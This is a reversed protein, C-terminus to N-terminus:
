LSDLKIKRIEEPTYFYDWIYRVKNVNGDDFLEDEFSTDYFYIDDKRNELPYINYTPEFDDEVLEAIYSHGKIYENCHIFDVGYINFDKKCTLTLM